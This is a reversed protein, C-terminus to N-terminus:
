SWETGVHFGSAVLKKQIRVSLGAKKQKEILNLIAKDETERLQEQTLNGAQFEKRATKLGEPRLFSGVIDFRFPAKNKM